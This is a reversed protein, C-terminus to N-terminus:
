EDQIIMQENEHINDTFNKLNRESNYWLSAMYTLYVCFVFLIAKTM